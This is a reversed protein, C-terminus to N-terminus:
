LIILINLRVLPQCGLVWIELRLMFSWELLLLVHEQVALFKESLLGWWSNTVEFINTQAEFCRFLCDFGLINILFTWEGAVDWDSSLNQLSNYNWCLHLPSNHDSSVIEVIDGLVVSVLFSVSVIWYVAWRSEWHFFSVDNDNSLASGEGLGYMEIHKFNDGILDNTIDSFLEHQESRYLM